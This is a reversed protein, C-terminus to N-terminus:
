LECEELVLEEKEVTNKKQTSTIEPATKQALIKFEKQIKEIENKEILLGSM